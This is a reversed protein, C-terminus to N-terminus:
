HFWKPMTCWLFLAFHNDILTDPLSVPLSLLSFHRTLNWVGSLSTIEHMGTIQTNWCEHGRTVRTCSCKFLQWSYGMTTTLSVMWSPSLFVSLTVLHSCTQWVTCVTYNPNWSPSVTEALYFLTLTHHNDISESLPFFVPGAIILARNLLIKVRHSGIIEFPSVYQWSSYHLNLKHKPSKESCNKKKRNAGLPHCNVGM